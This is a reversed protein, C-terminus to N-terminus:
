LAQREQLYESIVPSDWDEPRALLWIGKDIGEVILSFVAKQLAQLVATYVPENVSYGSEAEALRNLSLYRFLGARIEQSFITKSTSVSLLVRGSKVDVARLYITVKDTRYLESVNFGYYGGSLGGTNINTDFGVIAGELLVSATQLPPLQANSSTEDFNNAARIIKRETLINQLGEREVPVFWKSNSLVQVLISTAGQTVATSFSSVNAQPKYQGTQDRFHYVAVPIAGRPDPLAILDSYSGFRESLTAEQIDTQVNRSMVCGTLTFVVLFLHTLRVGLSKCKM